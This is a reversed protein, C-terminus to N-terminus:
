EHRVGESPNISAAKWAPYITALFSLALSMLVVTIVEDTEVIAPLHSLFYIEAAFLESGSLTEVLTM